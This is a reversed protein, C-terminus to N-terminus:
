EEFGPHDLVALLFELQAVRSRVPVCPRRWRWRSRPRGIRANIPQDRRRHRPAALILADPQGLPRRAGAGSPALGVDQTSCALYVAKGENAVNRANAMNHDLAFWAIEHWTSRLGPALTVEGLPEHRMQFAPYPPPPLYTPAMDKCGAGLPACVAHLVDASITAPRRLKVCGHAAHNGAM